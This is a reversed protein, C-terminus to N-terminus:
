FSFTWRPKLSMNMKYTSRGREVITMNMSEFDRRQDLLRKELMDKM